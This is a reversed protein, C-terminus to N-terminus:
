EWSEESGHRSGRDRRDQRQSRAAGKSLTRTKKESSQDQRDWVQGGRSRARLVSKQVRGTAPTRPLSVVAELYRPTMFPPMREALWGGLVGLEMPERLVVVVKIDQEGDAAPEGIAAAEEVAPHDLVYAEVEFSSVNEGRRRICDKFRDVFYLNGEATYRMADGTHFWGNRWAAATAEADHFYGTTISWPMATRVVLEGVEGPPVERDLEDVVRIDYGRPDEAPRGCCALDTGDVDVRAIAGGIETSGFGTTVAVDFRKM